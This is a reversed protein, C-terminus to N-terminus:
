CDAVLALLPTDPGCRRRLISAATVKMELKSPDGEGLVSPDTLSMFRGKDLAQSHRLSLFHM